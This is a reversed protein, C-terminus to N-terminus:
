IIHYVAYKITTCNRHLFSMLQIGKIEDDELRNEQFTAKDFYMMTETMWDENIRTKRTHSLWQKAYRPTVDKVSNDAFYLIYLYLSMYILKDSVLLKIEPMLSNITEKVSPRLFTIQFM